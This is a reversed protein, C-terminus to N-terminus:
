SAVELTHERLTTQDAFLFTGRVSKGALVEPLWFADDAWMSEYPIKDLAFWKPRMEETERVEGSFTSGLFVHVELEVPDGDFRFLLMGRPRLDGPTIGAEEVCERRAAELISEGAEVKGGFGNWKGMGFGRKKLGLLVKGDQVILCLTLIKKDM